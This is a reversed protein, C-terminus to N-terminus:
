VSRACSGAGLRDGRGLCGRSHSIISLVAALERERRYAEELGLALEAVLAAGDDSERGVDGAQGELVRHLELKSSVGLKRYISGLHTRVTAPAIFLADAIERYSAGNAYATAVQLERPSLQSSDAKRDM